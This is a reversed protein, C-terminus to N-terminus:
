FIFLGLSDMTGKAPMHFRQRTETLNKNKRKQKDTKQPLLSPAGRKRLKKFKM